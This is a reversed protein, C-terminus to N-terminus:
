PDVGDVVDAHDLHVRDVLLHFLRQRIEARNDELLLELEIRKLGIRGDHQLTKIINDLWRDAITFAKRLTVTTM